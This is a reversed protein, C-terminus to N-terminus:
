KILRLWWTRKRVIWWGACVALAVLVINGLWLRMQQFWNLKVPVEKVTTEQRSQLISDSHQIHERMLSITSDMVELRHSMVAILERETDSTTERVNNIILTEKIVKGSSDVVMTHSTDSKERISQFQRLIEQRWASDNQVVTRQRILSDLREVAESVRHDTVDSVIRQPTCSTFISCVALIVIMAAFMIISRVIGRMVARQYAELQEKTPHDPLPDYYISVPDFPDNYFHQM